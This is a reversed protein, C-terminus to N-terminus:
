PLSRHQALKRAYQWAAHRLGYFAASGSGPGIGSLWLRTAIVDARYERRLRQWEAMPGQRVDQLLLHLLEHVVTNVQFYPVRNGSARQLSVVCLDYGEYLTAVGSLGRAGDMQLPVLDTVMVNIRGHRLGLLRPKGSAYHLVEGVAQETQLIIGAKALAAEAEAWITNAFQRFQQPRAHSHRDSLHLVPLQVTAPPEGEQAAQERLPLELGHMAAKHLLFGLGGVAATAVIQRRRKRVAMKREMPLM